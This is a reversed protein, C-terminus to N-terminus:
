DQLTSTEKGGLERRTEDPDVYLVAFIVLTQLVGAILFLTSYGFKSALPDTLQYGLVASLNMMAMYATFQTGGVESWTIRMMLAFLNISVLAMVFTRISWMSMMYVSNDWLSESMGWIATVLGGALASYIIVTKGGFRRGLQGGVLYAAMTIVLILGGKTANFEEQTWGLERIFLLPLVPIIFSALSMVLCVLIAIRTSKLSFATKVKGLIEKFNQNEEKEVESTDSSGESWPFLKEGPREKMFLPVMMILILIPIQIILAGKVGTYSIITGLGAGGIIAGVMHSTFMYSNVKEIEHEKLVDVALADTSVDQLSTFINYVCFFIALVYIEVDPSVIFIMVVLMMAMGSQAILIWPRRRGMPRYQYRDIVPGWLFKLSWPLTGVTLLFALNAASFGESALYTVFTVTFFGWPIGQAVYMVCLTLVRARYSDILTEGEDDEVEPEDVLTAEIADDLVLGLQFQERRTSIFGVLVFVGLFWPIFFATSIVSDGVSLAALGDDSEGEDEPEPEPEPVPLPEVVITGIMGMAEHPECVYQYTGNEGIQFTYTYNVNRAPEGSDFLGNEEVANHPPEWADEEWFFRVTDGEKVTLYDPEFRFITADITVIHIESDSENLVLNASDEPLNESTQPPVSTNSAVAVSLTTLLFLSAIIFSVTLKRGMPM